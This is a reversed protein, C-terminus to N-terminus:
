GIQIAFPLSMGQIDCRHTRCCFCALIAPLESLYKRGHHCSRAPLQIVHHNMVHAAQQACDKCPQSATHDLALPASTARACSTCYAQSVQQNVLDKIHIMLAHSEATSHVPCLTSTQNLFLSPLIGSSCRIGTVYTACGLLRHWM